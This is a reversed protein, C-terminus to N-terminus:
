EDNCQYQVLLLAGEPVGPLVCICMHTSCTTTHDSPQCTRKTSSHFKCHSASGTQRMGTALTIDADVLTLMCISWQVVQQIHAVTFAREYVTTNTHQNNSRSAGPRCSCHWIQELHILFVVLRVCIHRSHRLCCSCLSSSWDLAAVDVDAGDTEEGGGDMNPRGVPQMSWSVNTSRAAITVSCPIPHVPRSM